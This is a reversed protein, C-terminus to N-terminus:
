LRRGVRSSVNNIGCWVWKCLCTHRRSRFAEFHGRYCSKCPAATARSSTGTTAGLCLTWKCYFQIGANMASTCSCILQPVNVERSPCMSFLVIVIDLADARRLPRFGSIMNSVLVNRSDSVSTDSVVGKALELQSQNSFLPTQKCIRPWKWPKHESKFM